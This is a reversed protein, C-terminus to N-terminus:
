FQVPTLENLKPTFTGEKEQPQVQNKTASCSKGKSQPEPAKLDDLTLSRAQSTM